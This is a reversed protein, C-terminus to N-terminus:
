PYYIGLIPLFIIRGCVKIFVNCHDLQMVAVIGWEASYTLKEKKM